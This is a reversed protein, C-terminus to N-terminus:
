DHWFDNQEDPHADQKEHSRHDDGICAFRRAAQSVTPTEEREERDDDGSQSPIM